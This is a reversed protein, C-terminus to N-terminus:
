DEILLSCLDLKQLIYVKTLNMDFSFEISINALKSIFNLRRLLLLVLGQIGEPLDQIPGLLVGDV